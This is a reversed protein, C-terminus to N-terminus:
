WVRHAAPTSFWCTAAITSTPKVEGFEPAPDGLATSDVAKNLQALVWCSMDDGSSVIAGAPANNDLPM